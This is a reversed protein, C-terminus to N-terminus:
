LAGQQEGALGAAADVVAEAQRLVRVTADLDLRGDPGAGRYDDLVAVTMWQGNGFRAPRGLPLGHDQAARMVREHWQGRLAARRDPEPVHIKVCLKTEELQLYPRATGNGEPGFYWWYGHFGGTPNAVYGWEGTDLVDQLAGYFGLWGLSDWKKLEETRYSEIREDIAQLHAHFDLVVPHQCGADLAGALLCLLDGRRVVAYGAEEVSRHSSQEGTQVYIPLVDSPLDEDQTIIERYRRLQDSHERTFTKDEILVTYEDNVVALIDINYKQRCVRVSRVDPRTRDSRQFLLDLFRLGLRHMGADHAEAKPDAWAVLWCLMADQSLESTAYQFLNPRSM